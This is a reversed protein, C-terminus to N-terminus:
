PVHVSRRCTRSLAPMHKMWGAACHVYPPDHRHFEKREVLEAGVLNRGTAHLEPQEQRPYRRMVPVLKQDVSKNSELTEHEQTTQSAYSM